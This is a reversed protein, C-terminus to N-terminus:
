SYFSYYYKRIFTYQNIVDRTFIILIIRYIDFVNIDYKPWLLCSRFMNRFGIFLGYLCVNADGAMSEESLDGRHMEVM